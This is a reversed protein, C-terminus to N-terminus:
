PEGVQRSAISERAHNRKEMGPGLWNFNRRGFLRVARRRWWAVAYCVICGPRRICREFEANAKRFAIEDGGYWFAEDHENCCDVMSGVFPLWDLVGSCGDGYEKKWPGPNANQEAMLCAVGPHGRAYGDM